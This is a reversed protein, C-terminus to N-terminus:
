SWNVLRQHGSLFGQPSFLDKYPAKALRSSFPVLVPDIRELHNSIRREKSYIEPKETLQDM